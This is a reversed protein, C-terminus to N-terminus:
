KEGKDENRPFACTCVKFLDELYKFLIGRAAERDSDVRYRELYKVIDINNEMDESIM